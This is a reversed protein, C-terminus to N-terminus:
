QAKSAKEIKITAKKPSRKSVHRTIQTRTPFDNNSPIILLSQEYATIAEEGRGQNRYANGLSNLTGAMLRRNGLERSIQLSQEYATIAANWCEQNAHVVGIKSLAEAIGPSYGLERSLQLSQKYADMAEEWLGQEVYVNGLNGLPQAIGLRDGLERAIQISQEYATIAEDWHGQCCYVNGLNGLTQAASHREGLDQKIQLSQKQVTVAEEWRGQDLYILGLNGLTNAVGLSDGLEQSIQLVQEHAVIAEDWRGQSCYVNGLNMLIIGQGHKNGLERKTQLSQEYASIAEICRGQIFYVSGLNCRSTAEGLQDRLEQSIQLSQEHAAIAEEWRGQNRYVQGLNDLTVSLGYLNESKEACAKAIEHTTVWDEWHSRRFYFTVLNAALTVAKDSRKLQALHGIISVWNGREAEFYNLAKQPLAQELESASDGTESAIAQTLQRCSLPNLGDKWYTAANCYWNLACELVSTREKSELKERAFLRMLDHFQYRGDRQELVQAEVLRNLGIETESKQAEIVMAALALGFDQGPLGGMYRFLQQLEAQLARYSLNFSARVKGQGPHAKEVREHELKALRTEEDALGDSYAALTKKEWLPMKLTAAAIRIALPLRGCLEVIQRATELDDPVRTPSVRRVIEHLLAESEGLESGSGVEMPQLDLSQGDLELRERSTVVVASTGGPPRLPTVQTEDLANDLLVVVRKKAMLARYQTERGRQELSIEKEELGFGDRLVELLAQTPSMPKQDTGRLNLYIQGDPFLDKLGHLVRVALRSKGVGAMGSIGIMVPATREPTNVQELWEILTTQQAERGVFDQIDSPL